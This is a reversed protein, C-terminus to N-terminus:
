HFISSLHLSPPFSQSQSAYTMKHRLSSPRKTTSCSAITLVRSLFLSFPFSVSILLTVHPRASRRPLGNRESRPESLRRRHYYLILCMLLPIGHIQPRPLCVLNSKGTEKGNRCQLDFRTRSFMSQLSYRRSAADTFICFFKGVKSCKENSKLQNALLCPQVLQFTCFLCCTTNNNIEIVEREREEMRARAKEDRRGKERRHARRAKIAGRLRM